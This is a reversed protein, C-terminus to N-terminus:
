GADTGPRGLAGGAGGGSSMKHRNIVCGLRRQFRLRSNKLDYDRQISSGCESAFDARLVATRGGLPGMTRPALAGRAACPQLQAGRHAPSVHLILLFGNNLAIM